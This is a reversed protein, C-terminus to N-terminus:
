PPTIPAVEAFYETVGTRRIAAIAAVAAKLHGGIDTPQM